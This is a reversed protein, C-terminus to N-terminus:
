QVGGPGGSWASCRAVELGGGLRWWGVRQSRPVVPVSDARARTCTRLSTKASNFRPKRGRTALLLSRTHILLGHGHKFAALNGSKSTARIFAGADLRECEQLVPLRLLRPLRTARQWTKIRQNLGKEGEHHSSHLPNAKLNLTMIQTHREHGNSTTQYSSHADRATAM